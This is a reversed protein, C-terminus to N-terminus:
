CLTKEGESFLKDNVEFLDMGHMIGYIIIADRREKIYLQALGSCKLLNQTEELSASLGFGLSIVRDRSPNRGGSFIQHLYVESMGASKALAAKSIGKNQLLRSLIQPFSDSQFQGSNEELFASLDATNMLEKQLDDTNKSKM